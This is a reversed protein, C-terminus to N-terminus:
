SPDVLFLPQDFEVPSSDEVLVKVIKGSVESEIDNFLKMAEIVCLVDGQSISAGVEVFPPKDPSPKRYFTGIIPSKITIYKSEDDAAPEPTSAAPAPAEPAVAPAPAVPMAPAQAMPIQQVITTEPSSSTSGTRITIKVDEMELKVESAGSKAVFKILSQIEKIDM